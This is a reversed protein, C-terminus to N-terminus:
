PTIVRRSSPLPTSCRRVGPKVEVSASCSHSVGSRYCSRSARVLIESGRRRGLRTSWARFGPKVSNVLGRGTPAKRKRAAGMNWRPSRTPWTKTPSLSPAWRSSRCARASRSVSSRTMGPLSPMSSMFSMRLVASAGTMKRDTYPWSSVTAM